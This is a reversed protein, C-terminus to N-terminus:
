RDVSSETSAIHEDDSGKLGAQGKPLARGAHEGKRGPRPGGSYVAPELVGALWIRAPQPGATAAM